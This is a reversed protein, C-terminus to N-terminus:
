LVFAIKGGILTPSADYPQELQVGFILQSYNYDVGVTFNNRSFGADLGFDFLYAFRYGFWPSNEKLGVFEWGMLAIKSLGLWPYKIRHTGDSTITREVADVEVGDVNVPSGLYFHNITKASPVSSCSSLFIACLGLLWAGSLKIV